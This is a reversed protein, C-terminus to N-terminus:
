TLAGRTRRGVSAGGIDARQGAANGRAYGTGSYTVRTSRTKPYATKLNHSIVQARDVLAVAVSTSRGATTSAAEGAAKNEAQKVRAIVATAFGLLFSRNWARVSRVYAARDAKRLANFMQLLVSTYLVDLRELDSEYGFVHVKTTGGGSAVIVSQCRMATALGCLLQAKVRGWPDSVAIVKDGPKDTEPKSAALLARDIGYKAMLEAAKGTLAEAEAPTVGEAEAKTLLM